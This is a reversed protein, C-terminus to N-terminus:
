FSYRLALSAYSNLHYQGLFDGPNGHIWTVGGTARWHRAYTQSYEFRLWTGQGNQRTTGTIAFSKTPSITYGARGLISRAFGREPSFQFPNATSATVVEGAYGTVFVWEKVTRELQLVYLLYEDSQKKPSMYYAAEAKLTFWRTPIAADAGVLRLRPYYRSVNLSPEFLPLYNFGDFYSASYEYGRAIHNWRGGFQSRGPYRAGLDHIPINNLAAPLVTWRQNLLPTRSPTFYPQWILDITNSGREYTARAAVVGLFDTNVVNLFDKPAFRDTPNLIDAKGWRIFQRGAEFTWNGKNVLASFRRLSFDPRQLARDNWDLSWVREVQRHTDTRADFAGSFKLWPLAQWSAEYRLLMESVAHSSDNPAVQPYLTTDSELFGRSTFTQAAALAACAVFALALKM